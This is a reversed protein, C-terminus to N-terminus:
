KGIHELIKLLLSELTEGENPSIRGTEPNPVLGHNELLSRPVHVLGGISKPKGPSPMGDYALTKAVLSLEWVQDNEENPYELLTGDILTVYRKTEIM